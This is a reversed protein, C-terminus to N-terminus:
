LVLPKNVKTFKFESKTELFNNVCGYSWIHHYLDLWTQRIEDEFTIKHTIM